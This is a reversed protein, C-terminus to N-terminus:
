AASEGDDIAPEPILTLTTAAARARAERVQRAKARRDNAISSPARSGTRGALTLRVHGDDIILHRDVGGASAGIVVLDRRARQEETM